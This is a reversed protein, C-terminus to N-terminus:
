SAPWEKDTVTAPTAAAGVCAAPQALRGFYTSGYTPNSRDHVSLIAYCFGRSSLAVASWTDRDIPNVSVVDPATSPSDAGVFRLPRLEAGQRVRALEKATFRDLGIYTGHRRTGVPSCLPPQGPCRTPWHCDRAGPWDSRRPLGVLPHHGFLPARDRGSPPPGTKDARTAHPGSHRCRKRDYGARLCGLARLRACLDRSRSHRSGALLRDRSPSPADALPPHPSACPVRCPGDIGRPRGPKALHSRHRVTSGSQQERHVSPASGLLRLPPARLRRPLSPWWRSCANPRRYGCGARAVRDTEECRDATYRPPDAYVPPCRADRSLKQVRRAPGTHVDGVAGAVCWFLAYYGYGNM